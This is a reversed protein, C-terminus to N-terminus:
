GQAEQSDIKAYQNAQALVKDYLTPEFDLIDEPSQDAPNLPVPVYTVHHETGDWKTVYDGTARLLISGKGYSDGGGPVQSAFITFTPDQNGVIYPNNLNNHFKSLSERRFQIQPQFVSIVAAPRRSLSWRLGGAETTIASDNLDPVTEHVIYNPMVRTLVDSIQMPQGAAAEIFSNLVGLLGRYLYLDRLNKSYRVGDAIVVVPSGSIAIPDGIMQALALHAQWVRM